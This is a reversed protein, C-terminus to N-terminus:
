RSGPCSPCRCTSSWCRPALPPLSGYPPRATVPRRWWGTAPRRSIGAGGRGALDPPRRRGHGHDPRGTREPRATHSRETHERNGRRNLADSGRGADNGRLNPRRARFGCSSRRGREPHQRSSQRVESTPSGGRISQSLGLRGAGAAQLPRSLSMGVGDDRVTVVVQSPEDEVLVWAKASDGAHNRVNDLAAGVAAALEDAYNQPLMVPTAPTSLEVQSSARVVLLERLDVPEGEVRGQPPAGVLARLAVEQEGALQALEAAEGGIELGRRQVLALVQLVSDHIDRALREREATAAQKETAENLAREARKGFHALYGLCLGTILVYVCNSALTVTFAGRELVDALCIM